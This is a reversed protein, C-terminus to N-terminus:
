SKCGKKFTKIGDEDGQRETNKDKLSKFKRDLMKLVNDPVLGKVSGGFSAIEKIIQSSIYFYSESTMMFFTEIKPNLKRNLSDMQFEYDFDSVARLGRIVVDVGREELFNVLLGDFSEVIIRKNHSLAEKIMQLREEITFLPKKRPNKAVAVIIQDFVRSAREAIDIHGNTIPDFSGPYVAIKKM